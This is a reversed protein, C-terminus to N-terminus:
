AMLSNLKVTFETHIVKKIEPHPIKDLVENAFGIVMLEMADQKNIGRSQLYFLADEDIQGTTSGHSCKVDDAYIELQPNSNMKAVVPSLASSKPFSATKP